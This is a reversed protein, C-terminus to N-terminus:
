CGCQGLNWNYGCQPCLGACQERCLPKMPRALLIAQRVAETLDLVHEFSIIFTDPEPLALPAGNIVGVLPIFEDEIEPTLAQRYHELCRSCEEEKTTSLSATVLLGRPTRLMHVTGQVLLQEQSDWPNAIRDELTYERVTGVPEKLLTAVNYIM